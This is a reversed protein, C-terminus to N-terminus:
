IAIAQPITQHLKEIIITIEDGFNIYVFLIIGLFFLFFLLLTYSFM